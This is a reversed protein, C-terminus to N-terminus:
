QHAVREAMRRTNVFILTSRHANILEVVRANIQGLARLLLRSWTRTRAGRNRSRPAAFARCKHNNSTPRNGIATLRCGYNKKKWNLRCRESNPFFPIRSEAKPERCEASGVLFEAMREIPRQTAVPRHTAATEQVVSAPTRPEARSAAANTASSPTSKM